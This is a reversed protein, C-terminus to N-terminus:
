SVEQSLIADIFQLASGRSHADHHPQNYYNWLCEHCATEPGCKCEELRDKAAAPVEPLANKIRQIQGAVRAGLIVTAKQRKPTDLNSM